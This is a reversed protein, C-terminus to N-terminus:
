NHYEYQRTFTNYNYQIGALSGLWSYRVKQVYVEVIGTEFDRYVCLGNDTKNNFHASGSISYMTPIEYKKTGPIKQLKAPHAIIIIHIGLKMAAAKIKTLANSIYNTESTGIPIDHQIYNWPDILLGNIGKRAVLESAKDIIGDITNDCENTNYFFFNSRIFPIIFQLEDANIRNNHDIRYDFAKGALKEAIKTAHLSAPTNEFSCIGWKWSYKSAMSSMVYDIFESKGHGPAGTVTTFQGEILQLHDDIGEIGIKTGKPYGNQYFNLIDDEISQGEVVGDIPIPKASEILKNIGEKGHLKLVDNADKCKDPFTVYYCRDKGLRRILEDKLKKGIEDNDTAIIIKEKELFYEYCNDLYTLRIKGSSGGNPVSVVNYVNAEYMSLCDVEGEVIICTKEDKIADLNYFILESDKHLKFDKQAGRFKINVLENDRYYNFCIVPTEQKFKPMWEVSQSINFRLLTNNSIGRTNFWDIYKKDLKELREVPKIIPKNDDEIEINYFNAVYKVADYFNLGNIKMVFDIADGSWGCGFCKAFNTNNKPIKFSPTRENHFPCCAENNKLKVFQSVIDIIKSTDKIEQIVDQSIM